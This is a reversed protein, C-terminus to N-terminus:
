WNGTKNSYHNQMFTQFVGQLHVVKKSTQFNAAASM